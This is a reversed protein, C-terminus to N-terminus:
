AAERDGSLPLVPGTLRGLMRAGALADTSVNFYAPIWPRGDIEIASGYTTVTWGMLRWMPLWKTDQLDHGMAHHLQPLAEM